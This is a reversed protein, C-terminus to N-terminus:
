GPEQDGSGAGVEASLTKRYTITTSDQVFGFARRLLVCLCALMMASTTATVLSLPISPRLKIMASLVYLAASAASFSLFHGILKRFHDRNRGATASEEAERTERYRLQFVALLFGAVLLSLEALLGVVGRFAALSMEFVYIM